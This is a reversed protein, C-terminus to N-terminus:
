ATVLMKGKENSRKTKRTREHVSGDTEIVVCRHLTFGESCMGREMLFSAICVPIRVKIPRFRPLRGIVEDRWKIHATAPRGVSNDEEIWALLTRERVNGAQQKLTVEGRTKNSECM